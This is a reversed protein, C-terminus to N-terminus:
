FSTLCPTPPNPRRSLAGPRFTFVTFLLVNNEIVKVDFFDSGPAYDPNSGLVERGFKSAMRSVAVPDELELNEYGPDTTGDSGIFSYCPM